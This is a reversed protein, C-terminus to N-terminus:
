RLARPLGRRARAELGSLVGTSILSLVFYILIAALYFPFPQHTGAIAVNASRMLDALSIASVLSTDKLLIMWLNGLGPLALRWLQPLLVLRFAQRKSLGMAAAAEVQERPFARLAGLFVESAYAAFVLGLAILGAIFPHPQVQVGDTFLDLGAQILLPSGYYILFLTLLEPLARFVTGFGSAFAGLVRRESWRALGLALGVALGLPLAALALRITLWTGAALEDGWGAAGFRFLEAWDAM